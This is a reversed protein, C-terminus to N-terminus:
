ERTTWRSVTGIWPKGKTAGLGLAEEGEGVTMKVVGAGAPDAITVRDGLRDVLLVVRGEVHDGDPRGFKLVTYIDDNIPEFPREMVNARGLFLGVGEGLARLDHDTLTQGGALRPEIRARVMHDAVRAVLDEAPVDPDVAGLLVAAAHLAHVGSAAPRVGSAVKPLPREHELEERVLDLLHTVIADIRFWGQRNRPWARSSRHASGMVTIVDPTHPGTGPAAPLRVNASRLVRGGARVRLVPMGVEPSISETRLVVGRERAEALIAAVLQHTERTM